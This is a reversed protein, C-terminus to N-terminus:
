GAALVDRLRRLALETKCDEIEGRVCGAIAEDLEMWQTSAGEEMPSGDGAPPEQAAPNAVEAATLWFREPMSGPSPFMPEGLHKVDGPEIRYGAEELAEEAARRAIGERGRDDAEIIGAVLETLYLYSKRDPVPVVDDPRGFALAPRLGQRLLVQIRGDVRAYLAVVVADLGVPRAIFDCVYRESLSGDARRNRMRLRRIALFGGERGVLDDSEIDFGVIKEMGCQVNELSTM